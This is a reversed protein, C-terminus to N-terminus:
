SAVDQQIRTALLAEVSDRRVLTRGAAQQSALEGRVIRSLVSLRTEGLAAAAVPVSLWGDRVRNAKRANAM